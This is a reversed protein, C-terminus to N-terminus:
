GPASSTRTTPAWRPWAPGTSAPRCRSAPSSRTPPQPPATPPSSRRRSRPWGPRCTRRSSRPSSRTSRPARGIAGTRLEVYSGNKPKVIIAFDNASYTFLSGDQGAVKAPQPASVDLRDKYRSDYDSTPYWNMELSRDGNTFGITGSEETFGYVTTAKWGPEDILLRPNDQAAKLVLQSWAAADYTTVAPAAQQRDGTPSQNRLVAAVGLITILVAAAAVAAGLRRSLTRRATPQSMIEELLTQGAEDLHAIRRYPDADRVRRDLQEDTM